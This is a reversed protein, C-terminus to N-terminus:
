VDGNVPHPPGDHVDGGGGGDVYCRMLACGEALAAGFRATGVVPAVHELAGRRLLDDSYIRLPMCPRRTDPHLCLPLKILHSMGTTVAADIRPRLVRAVALWDPADDLAHDRRVQAWYPMVAAAVGARMEASWAADPWATAGGFMADVQALLAVRAEGSLRATDPACVWAHLGRRGSFVWLPPAFGFQFRLALDLLRASVVLLRWCKACLRPHGRCECRRPGGSAADDYANVDLDFVLDRAVVANFRQRDRARQRAQTAENRQDDTAGPPRAAIYQAPTEIMPDRHMAGLDVRYVHRGALMDRLDDAGCVAMHRLPHANDGPRGMFFAWERGVLPGALAVFRVLLDADITGRYYADM